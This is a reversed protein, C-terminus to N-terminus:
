HEESAHKPRNYPRGVSPIGVADTLEDVFADINDPSIVICKDYEENWEREQRIVLSGDPEHYIAVATQRRVVISEDKNWDFDGSEEPPKKTKPQRVVFHQETEPPPTSEEGFLDANHAYHIPDTMSCREHQDNRNAEQRRERKAARQEAIKHVTATQQDAPVAAIELLVSQNDDLGAEKAAAKAEPALGAIKRARIIEQRTLNLARAAESNGGAIGRGGRSVQGLQAPKTEEHPQERIPSVAQTAKAKREILHTWEAVQESRQQVTLEARHLNEAIVQLRFDIMDGTLYVADALLNPSM